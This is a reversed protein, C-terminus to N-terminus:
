DEIEVLSMLSLKLFVDTVKYKINSGLIPDQFEISVAKM